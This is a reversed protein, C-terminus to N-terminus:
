AHPITPPPPHTYPYKPTNHPCRLSWKGDESQFVTVPHTHGGTSGMKTVWSKQHGCPAQPTVCLSPDLSCGRNPHVGLPMPSPRSCIIKHSRPQAAWKRLSAWPDCVSKTENRSPEFKDKGGHSFSKNAQWPNICSHIFSLTDHSVYWHTVHFSHYHNM